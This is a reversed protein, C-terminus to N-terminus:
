QALVFFHHFQYYPNRFHDIIELDTTKISIILDDLSKDVGIEWFHQPNRRPKKIKWRGGLGTKRYFYDALRRKRSLFQTKDPLSVIVFGKSLRKLELLSPVFLSYPLHELVQFCLCADFSKNGFPLQPFSGLVDPFINIDIDVGIIKKNSRSLLFKLLNNGTGVELFSEAKSNLALKYQYSISTMRKPSLYNEFYHQADVQINPPSSSTRNVPNGM